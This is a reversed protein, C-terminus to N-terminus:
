TPEWNDGLHEAPMWVIQQFDVVQANEVRVGEAELLEQMLTPTAFHQRGTLEGKRNVVRHAPVRDGSKVKNIAWGAMRSSGLALFDAIAGYTIVRGRPVCRVVAYVLDFYHPKQPANEPKQM